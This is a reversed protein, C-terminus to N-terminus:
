QLVTQSGAVTKSWSASATASAVGVASAAAVVVLSRTRVRTAIGAGLATTVEKDSGFAAGSTTTLRSLEATEHGVVNTAWGPCDAPLVSVFYEIYVVVVISKFQPPQGSTTLV